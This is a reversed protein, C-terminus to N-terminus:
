LVQTGITGIPRGVIEMVGDVVSERAGESAVSGGALYGLWVLRSIREDKMGGVWEMKRKREKEAEVVRRQEEQSGRPQQGASAQQTETVKEGEKELWVGLEGARDRQLLLVKGKEIGKRGGGFISRFETISEQLGARQNEPMVGDKKQSQSSGARADVSRVWGDRMHSYDTSRTPVIRLVSKVGGSRLVEDWIKEGRAADDEGLLSDKLQAKEDEVLTTAASVTSDGAASSTFFARVLSEQLAPLSSKAVYLGVVYVQIRFFSVTRIGLGLLQYEEGKQEPPPGTGYPLTPTATTSLSATTSPLRITRPFFPITSTGTQVLDQTLDESLVLPTGPKNPTSSANQRPNVGTSLASPNNTAATPSTSPSSPNALPSDPPIAPEELNLPINGTSASLALIGGSAVAIILVPILTKGPRIPESAYGRTTCSNFHTATIPKSRVRTSSRLCGSAPRLFPRFPPM